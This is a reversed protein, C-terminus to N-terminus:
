VRLYEAGLFVVTLLAIMLEAGYGKGKSISDRTDIYTKEKALVL